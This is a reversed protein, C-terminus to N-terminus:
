KYKRKCNVRHAGTYAFDCDCLVIEEESPARRPGDHTRLAVAKDRAAIEGTDPYEAARVLDRDLRIEVWPIMEGDSVIPWEESHFILCMYGQDLSEGARVLRADKPLKRLMAIVGYKDPALEVSIDLRKLRREFYPRSRM